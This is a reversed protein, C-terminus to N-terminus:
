FLSKKINRPVVNFSMSPLFFIFAPNVIECASISGVFICSYREYYQLIVHWIFVQLKAINRPIIETSLTRKEENFVSM